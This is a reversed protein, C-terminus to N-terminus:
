DIERLITIVELLRADIAKLQTGIEAQTVKLDVSDITNTHINKENDKIDEQIACVDDQIAEVQSNINNVQASVNWTGVILFVAISALAGLTIRAHSEPGWVM